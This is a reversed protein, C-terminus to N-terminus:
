PLELKAQARLDQVYKRLAEQQMGARIREKAQEFSPPQAPRKEQVELVVWARATEIPQSVQGIRLTPLAAGVEPLVAVPSVWGADGGKRASETDLSQSALDAFKKGSKLQSAIRNAEAETKVMIHRVRYEEKPLKKLMSDYRERVAGDRIPNRKLFREAAATFLVQRTAAAIADRVEPDKDLKDRRASQVLLERAILEETVARRAQPNDRPLNPNSRFVQDVDRNTIPTGNVKAAYDAALVPAACLLLAVCSILSRRQPM